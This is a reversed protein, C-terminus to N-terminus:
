RAFIIFLEFILFFNFFFVHNSSSGFLPLFPHFSNLLIRYQSSTSPQSCNIVAVGRHDTTILSKSLTDAAISHSQYIPIRGRPSISSQKAFSRSISIGGPVPPSLPVMAECKISEQFSFSALPRSSKCEKRSKKMMRPENKEECELMSDYIFYGGNVPPPPAGGRGGRTSPAGGRGGPASPRGRFQMPPPPMNYQPEIVAQQQLFSIALLSSSNAPYKEFWEKCDNKTKFSFIFRRWGQIGLLLDLNEEVAERNAKSSYEPLYLETDKLEKVENELYVMPAITPHQLRKEQMQLSSDDVVVVDMRAGGVASGDSSRTVKKM